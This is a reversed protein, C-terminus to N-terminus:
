VVSRRRFASQLGFALGVAAVGVAVMAPLAILTLLGGDRSDEVTSAGPQAAPSSGTPTSQIGGRLELAFLEDFEPTSQWAFGITSTPSEEIWGPELGKPPTYYMSVVASWGGGESPAGVGAFFTVDYNFPRPRTQVPAGSLSGAFAALLRDSPRFSVWQKTSGEAQTSTWWLLTGSGVGGGTLSARIPGRDLKREDAKLRASRIAKEVGSWSEAGHWVRDSLRLWVGTNPNFVLRQGAYLYGVPKDTALQEAVAFPSTGYLVYPVESPTPEPPPMEVAEANPQAIDEDAFFHMAYDGLDGGTLIYGPTKAEVPSAGFGPILALCIVAVTVGALSRIGMAKGTGAMQKDTIWGNVSEDAVM